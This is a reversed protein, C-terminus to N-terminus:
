PDALGLRTRALVVDPRDLLEDTVRVMRWGAIRLEDERRKEALLASRDQYKGLGDSEVLVCTGRIRGDSRYRTGPVQFQPELPYGFGDFVVATRSELPSERRADALRAVTALRAHGSRRGLLAAVREFQETTVQDRALAADMAM